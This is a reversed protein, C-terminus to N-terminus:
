SEIVPADGSAPDTRAALASGTRDTELQAGLRRLHPWVRTVIRTINLGANVAGDLTLARGRAYAVLAARTGLAARSKRLETDLKEKYWRNLAPGATQRVSDAWGAAELAEDHRDLGALAMAIGELQYAVTPSQSRERAGRLATCYGDLATQYDDSLLACDPWCYLATWGAFDTRTPDAMLASWILAAEAYRGECYGLIYPELGEVLIALEPDGLERLRRSLLTYNERVDDTTGGLVNFIISCTRM